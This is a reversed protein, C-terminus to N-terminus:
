TESKILNRFKQALKVEKKSFCNNIEGLKLMQKYVEVPVKINQTKIFSSVKIVEIIKRLTDEHKSVVFKKDSKLFPNVKRSFKALLARNLGLHAFIKSDDIICNYTKLDQALEVTESLM